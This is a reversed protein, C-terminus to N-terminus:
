KKRLVRSVTSQSIDLMAAIQEQTLKNKALDRIMSNRQVTSVIEPLYFKEKRVVGSAMATEMLTTQRDLVARAVKAGTKKNSKFSLSLVQEAAQGARRVDRNKFIRMLDSAM